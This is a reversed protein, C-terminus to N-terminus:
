FSRGFGEVVLPVSVVSKDPNIWLVETIPQQGPKNLLLTVEHSSLQLSHKATVYVKDGQVKMKSEISYTRGKASDGLHLTLWEGSLSATPTPSMDKFAAGSSACGVLALSILATFCLPLNKM